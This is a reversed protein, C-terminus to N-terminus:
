RSLLGVALAIRRQLEGLTLVAKADSDYDGREGTNSFTTGPLEHLMTMMTGILREVSRKQRSLYRARLVKRVIVEVEDPLRAGGRGGSPHRPLLDSAVDEGARWRKVLAYVQRQMVGFVAAAEDAVAISVRDLEALPGIVQAHRVAVRWRAEDATLVGREPLLSDGVM